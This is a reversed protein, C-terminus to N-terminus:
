PLREFGWNLHDVLQLAKRQTYIPVEPLTSHNEQKASPVKGAVLRANLQSDIDNQRANTANGMRLLNERSM